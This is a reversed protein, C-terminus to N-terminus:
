TEDGATESDKLLRFTERYHVDRKTFLLSQIEDCFDEDQFLDVMFDAYSSGRGARFEEVVQHLTKGEKYSRGVQDTAADLCDAGRVLAIVTRYPSTNPDFSDPYGGQGNAFMHHGRAVDAYAATSPHLSLLHAGIAPHSQILAFEEPLLARGYTLIIEAIYLKGFDHCLAAHRVYELIEERGALVAERSAYGPMGIFRDPDKELLKKAMACSIDAVMLTHVYSMPHIAAILSLGMTELNMGGPVEVFYKLILVLCSLLFTLMDKKPARHMQSILHTYFTNLCKIEGPSLHEKDLVLMYELPAQLLILTVQRGPNERINRYIMEELKEKYVALSMQGALYANRLAYLHVTKINHMADFDYDTREFLALMKQSCNHIVALQAENYGKRNNLDALSCIYEYCRFRHRLWDYGPLQERYFPNEELALADMMRKFIMERQEPTDDVDEIELVVRIYRANILILEQMEPPLQRFKDAELYTLLEEGAKLGSEHFLFCIDNEPMLRATINLLLYSATVMGDLALIRQTVDEQKESEKLLRTAQLYVLPMDLNHLSAANILSAAFFQMLELDEEELKIDNNILPYYYRSLIEGNDRALERIRQFNRVLHTRYEEEESIERIQPSTLSYIEDTQDIYRQLQAQIYSSEGSDQKSM